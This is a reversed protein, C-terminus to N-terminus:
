WFHRWKQAKYLKLKLKINACYMLEVKFYWNKKKQNDYKEIQWCICVFRFVWLSISYLFSFSNQDYDMFTHLPSLPKGFPLLFFFDRIEEIFFFSFSVIPFLFLMSLWLRFLFIFFSPLFFSAFFFTYISIGAKKLICTLPLQRKIELRKIKSFTKTENVGRADVTKRPEYSFHFDLNLVGFLSLCQNLNLIWTAKFYEM